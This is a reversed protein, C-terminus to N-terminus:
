QFYNLSQYAFQISFRPALFLQLESNVIFMMLLLYENSNRQGSLKNDKYKMSTFDNTIKLVVKPREPQLSFPFRSSPLTKWVKCNTSTSNPMQKGFLCRQIASHSKEKRTSICQLLRVIDGLSRRFRLPARDAMGEADRRYLFAM